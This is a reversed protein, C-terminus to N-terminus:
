TVVLTVVVDVYSNTSFGSIRLTEEYTGRALGEAPQVTVQVSQTASSSLQGSYPTIGVLWPSCNTLKQIQYDLVSGALGVNQLTFTQYPIAPFTGDVNRVVAFSLSTPAISITPRPRVTITVPITVPSNTANVDQLTVTSEYPSASALMETSDVLVNFSGSVGSAMSGVSAPDAKVFAAGTTVAVGLLSGYPGNNTVSVAQPDSWGRGEDVAFALSVAGALISPAFVSRVESISEAMAAIVDGPIPTADRLLGFPSVVDRVYYAPTSLSVDVRTTWRWIGKPTQYRFQYDQFSLNAALTM